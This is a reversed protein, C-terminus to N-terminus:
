GDSDALTTSPDCASSLHHVPGALAIKYFAATCVTPSLGRMQKDLLEWDRQEMESDGKGPDTYSVRLYSRREAERWKVM